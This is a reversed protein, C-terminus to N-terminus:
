ELPGMARMAAVFRRAEGTYTTWAPAVVERYHEAGDAEVTESGVHIPEEPDHGDAVCLAQAVRNVRAEDTM